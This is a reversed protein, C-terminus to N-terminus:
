TRSRALFKHAVNERDATTTFRRFLQKRHKPSIKYIRIQMLERKKKEREISYRWVIRDM